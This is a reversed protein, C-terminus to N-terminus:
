VVCFHNALEVIVDNACGNDSCYAASLMYTAAIKNFNCCSAIALFMFWLDPLGM